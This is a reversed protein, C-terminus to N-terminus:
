VAKVIGRSRRYQNVAQKSIGLAEAIQRDRQTWDVGDYRPLAKTFKLTVCPRCRYRLAADRCICRPHGELKLWGRDQCLRCRM